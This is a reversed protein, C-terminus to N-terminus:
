TMQQNPASTTGGGTGNEPHTHGNYTDRMEQMTGNADQVSGTAELSGTIKAKGAEPSAGGAAIGSCAVVGSVELVPTTATIKTSATITVNPATITAANATVKATASSTVEADGTAILKAKGGAVVEADLPTSIEIKTRKLHVKQGLDDYLAVEGSALSKLRYRRDDVAIVVCHDRNGGIALMIAEAGEKPNSTLGYNQIREVSDHVEDALAKLQLTQIGSSDKIATIIARGVLLMIRRKLPDSFKRMASLLDM